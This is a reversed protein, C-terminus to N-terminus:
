PFNAPLCVNVTLIQHHKLRDMGYKFDVTLICVANQICSM